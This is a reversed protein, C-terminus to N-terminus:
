ATITKSPDFIGDAMHIPQTLLATVARQAADGDEDVAFITIENDMHILCVSKKVVTVALRDVQENQLPAPGTSFAVLVTIPERGAQHFVLTEMIVGSKDPRDAARGYGELWSCKYLRCSEPRSAYVACGAACQSPCRTHKPKAIDAVALTTCCAQCEGCVRKNM